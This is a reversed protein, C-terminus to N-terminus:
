NVVKMKSIPELVPLLTNAKMATEDWEAAPASDATIGGGVYLNAKGPMLEACRLNVFFHTEGDIHYPGLFGSYYKRSHLETKAIFKLADNKPIGCVAPTPHLEMVLDWFGSDLRASFSTKLHVVSGAIIDSPASVKIESGHKEIIKKIYDTVLKQENIEKETWSGTLKKTGAVAATKIGERNSSILLEPSVTLWMAKGPIYVLSLFAPGFMGCLEVFAAIPSKSVEEIYQVRSLVVKKLKGEKIVGIAEKVKDCYIKEPTESNASGQIDFQYEATIEKQAVDCYLCSFHIDAGIFCAPSEKDPQFPYFIFGPASPFPMGTELAVKDTACSVCHIQQEGPLRYLAFPHNNKTCYSIVQGLSSFRNKAM